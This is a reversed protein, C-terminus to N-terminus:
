AALSGTEGDAEALDHLAEDLTLQRPTSGVTQKRRHEQHPCRGFIHKAQNCNFCLVQYGSPYSNKRLWRYLSIGTGPEVTRRKEAGDDHIHDITLFGNTM